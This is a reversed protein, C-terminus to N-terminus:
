SCTHTHRNSPLPHSKRVIDKKHKVLLAEAAAGFLAVCERAKAASDSLDAHVVSQISDGGSVGM